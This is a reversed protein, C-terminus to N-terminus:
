KRFDEVYRKEVFKHTGIKVAKLRGERIAKNVGQRTKGTAKAFDDVSLLDKSDVM